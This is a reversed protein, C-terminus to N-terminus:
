LWRWRRRWLLSHLVHEGNLRLWLTLHRYLLVHGLLVHGLLVHRLLVHLHDVHAHRRLWLEGDSAGCWHIHGHVPWGAANWDDVGVALNLQGNRVWVVLEHLMRERLGIVLGHRYWLVLRMLDHM